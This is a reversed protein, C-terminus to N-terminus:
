QFYKSSLEVFTNHEEEDNMEKNRRANMILKAKDQSLVTACTGLIEANQEELEAMIFQQQEELFIMM